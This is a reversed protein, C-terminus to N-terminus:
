RHSCFVLSWLIKTEKRFNWPNNSLWDCLQGSFIALWSLMTAELADPGITNVLSISPSTLLGLSDCISVTTANFLSLSVVLCHHSDLLFQIPLVSTVTVLPRITGSTWTLRVVEGLPLMLSLPFIRDNQFLLQLCSFRSTRESSM